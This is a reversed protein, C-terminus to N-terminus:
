DHARRCAGNADKVFLGYRHDAVPGVNVHLAPLSVGFAQQPDASGPAHSYNSVGLMCSALNRRKTVALVASQRWTRIRTITFLSPALLHCGIFVYRRQDLQQFHSGVLPRTRLGTLHRLAFQEAAILGQKIHPGLGAPARASALTLERRSHDFKPLKLHASTACISCRRDIQEFFGGALHGPRRRVTTLMLSVQLDPWCASTSRSLGAGLRIHRGVDGVYIATDSGGM